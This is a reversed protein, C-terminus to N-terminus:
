GVGVPDNVQVFVIPITTTAAKAALAVRHSIAVLLDPQLRVLEAALDPLRELQGEAWRSEIAMTQGERYGLDRLAQLFRGASGPTRGLLGIRLIKPSPQAHAAPPAVLLSLALIVLLVILGPRV